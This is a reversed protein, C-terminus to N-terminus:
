FQLITKTQQRLAELVAKKGSLNLATATEQWNRGQLLKLV